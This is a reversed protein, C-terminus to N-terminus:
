SNSQESSMYTKEIERMREVRKQHLLDGFEKGGMEEPSYGEDILRQGTWEDVAQEAADFRRIAEGKNFEGIPERGLCDAIALSIMKELHNIQQVMEVITSANLEDIKHFRMHFRSAEKMASEQENSMSLREAMHEVVDVGNSGHGYHHPLDEVPTAAKGLDHSLAMLLALEDNPRLKSMEDLVFITHDFAKGEQHYETPGAPVGKLEAIEPFVQKLAGVEDLIDFFKSPKKSQILAKTMEMRAREQPLESLREVMLGMQDMTHREIGFDLRSAFRAARMIRLPDEKFSTSDVARIIGNRLDDLGDHPDHFTEWRLDFYMANITFDRRQSDRHLAESAEVSAAVPEVDFDDHGDGTSQEERPLAVERSLSDQFVGFTENNASDIERFGRSRMENPTTEAVMLDLDTPEKGLLKSRIAGGVIFVPLGDFEPPLKIAEVLEDLRALEIESM